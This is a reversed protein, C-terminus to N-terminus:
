LNNTGSRLPRFLFLSLLFALSFPPVWLGILPLHFLGVIISIGSLPFLAALFGLIIRHSRDRQIARLFILGLCCLLVALAVWKVSSVLSTTAVYSDTFQSVVKLEHLMRFNEWYDFVGAVIVATTALRPLVGASGYTHALFIFAACYLLIFIFDMHTNYRLTVLNVASNGDTLLHRVADASNLLELCAVPSGCQEVVKGDGEDFQSEQILMALSWSMTLLIFLGAWRRIRVNSNTGSNAEAM